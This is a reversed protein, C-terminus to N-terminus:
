AIEIGTFGARLGVGLADFSLFNANTILMKMTQTNMSGNPGDTRNVGDFLDCGVATNAGQMYSSTIAVGVGVAPQFNFITNAPGIDNVIDGVAM